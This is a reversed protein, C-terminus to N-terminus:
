CVRSRDESLEESCRLQDLILNSGRNDSIQGIFDSVIEGIYESHLPRNSYEQKPVDGFGNTDFPAGYLKNCELM